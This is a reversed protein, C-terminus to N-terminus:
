IVSWKGAHGGKGDDVPWQNWHIIAEQAKQGTLLLVQLNARRELCRTLWSYHQASLCMEERAQSHEMMVMSWMEFVKHMQVTDAAVAWCVADALWFAKLLLSTQYWELRWLGLSSSFVNSFSLAMSVRGYSRRLRFCTTETKRRHM